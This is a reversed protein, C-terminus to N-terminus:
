KTETSFCDIKNLISYANGPLKELFNDYATNLRNTLFDQVDDTKAPLGARSFFHEKRKQWDSEPIFFDDLPIVM